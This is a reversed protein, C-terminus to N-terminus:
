FFVISIHPDETLFSANLHTPFQHMSFGSLDGNSTYVFDLFGGVPIVSRLNRPTARFPTQIVFRMERKEYYLSFSNCDAM